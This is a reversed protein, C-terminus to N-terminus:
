WTKFVKNKNCLYNNLCIPIFNFDDRFDRWVSFQATIWKHTLHSRPPCVRHPYSFILAIPIGVTACCSQHCRQPMPVCTWNRVQCLLNIVQCQWLQPTHPTLWLQPESRIGPGPVGYATPHCFFFFFFFFFFLLLHFISCTTRCNSFLFTMSINFFM